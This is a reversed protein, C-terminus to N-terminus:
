PDWSLPNNNKASLRSVKPFGPLKRVFGELLEYTVILEIDYAWQPGSWEDFHVLEDFATQRDPFYLHL